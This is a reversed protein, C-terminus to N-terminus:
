GRRPTSAVFCTARARKSLGRIRGFPAPGNGASNPRPKPPRRSKPLANPQSRARPFLPPSSLLAEGGRTQGGRREFVLPRRPAFNPADLGHARPIAARRTPFALEPRLARASARPLDASPARRRSVGKKPPTEKKARAYRQNRCPLDPQSRAHPYSKALLFSRTPSRCQLLARARVFLHTAFCLSSPAPRAAALLAACAVEGSGRGFDDEFGRGWDRGITERPLERMFAKLRESRAGQSNFCARARASCFLSPKVFM